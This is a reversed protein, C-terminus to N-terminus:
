CSKTNFLNLILQGLQLMVISFEIRKSDVTTDVNIVLSSSKAATDVEEDSCATAYKVM